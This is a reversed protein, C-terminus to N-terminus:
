SVFTLAYGQKNARGTRGIRHIYSEYNDPLDYNIVHTIEKIDLGRAAVDTAVLIKVTDERFLKIAQNRKNQPKDGHLSTAKFGKNVLDQSLNEVGIKTKGFILVKEFEKKELLNYLVDIKKQGQNVRVINQEVNKSSTNPKVSVTVPDKLFGEILVKIKPSITASFFLSQREKPLLNLIKKIDEIFGMDVMRDVEDLVINNFEGLRLLRRKVLDNIRGPTGIVFKPNRRLISIQRGMSNGGIIQVSFINTRKAFYNFESDIQSALERTPAIILVKQSPNKIVKNLLPIVFAATKGTGTEAIGIVDRGQIAYPISQDQIPTPIKYGKDLINSKLKSDVDFDSFKNKPIYKDEEFSSVAKTIYRSYDTYSAYKNTRKFRNKRRYANNMGMTRKITKM